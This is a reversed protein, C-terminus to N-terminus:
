GSNDFSLSNITPPPLYLTFTYTATGHNTVVKITNPVKPNAAATQATAPITIIINSNTAYAPNFYASTDNFIVAQLGDFNNGQIVILTGPVAKTFLSDKTAPDASRVGNIVPPGSDNKKCSFIVSSIIIILVLKKM